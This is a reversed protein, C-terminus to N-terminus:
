HTSWTFLLEHSLPQEKSLNIAPAASEILRKFQKDFEDQSDAIQRLTRQPDETEWYVIMSQGIPTRQVWVKEESIGLRKRSEEYAERLEGSESVLEGMRRVVEDQGPLIPLAFAVAAMEKRGEKVLFAKRRRKIEGQDESSKPQCNL